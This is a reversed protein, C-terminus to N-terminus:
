RRRPLATRRRLRRWRWRSWGARRRISAHRREGFQHHGSPLIGRRRRRPQFHRAHGSAHSGVGRNERRLYQRRQELQDLQERQEEALLWQVAAHGHRQVNITATLGALLEESPFANTATIAAPIFNTMIGLSFVTDFNTLPAGDLTIGVGYTVSGIGGAPTILCPQGGAFPGPSTAPGNGINNTVLPIGMYGSGTSLRGWTFANTTNPSLLVLFNSFSLWDGVTTVTGPSTIIQSILTANSGLGSADATGSIQYFSIQYAQTATPSGSGSGDNGYGTSVCQVFVNTVLYGNPNSGTVFTTGGPRGTADTYYNFAGSQSLEDLTNTQYIDNPGPRPPSAAPSIDTLTAQGRATQLFSVALVTLGLSFTRQFFANM